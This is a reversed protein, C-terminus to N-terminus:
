LSQFPGNKQPINNTTSYNENNYISFSKMSNELCPINNFNIIHDSSSSTINSSRETTQIYTVVM